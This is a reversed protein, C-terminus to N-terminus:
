GEQGFGSCHAQHFTDVGIAFDVWDEHPIEIQQGTRSDAIVMLDYGPSWSEIFELSLHDNIHVVEGRVPGSAPLSHARASESAITAIVAALGLAVMAAAVLPMLAPRDSLSSAVPPALVVLRYAIYVLLFVAVQGAFRVAQSVVSVVFEPQEVRGSFVLRCAATVSAAITCIVLWGIVFGDYVVASILDNMLVLIQVAQRLPPEAANGVSAVSHTVIALGIAVLVPWAALRSIELLFRVWYPGDQAREDM